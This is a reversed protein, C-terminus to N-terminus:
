ISDESAGLNRRSSGSSRGPARNDDSPPSHSADTRPCHEGDALVIFEVAAPLDAEVRLGFGEPVLAPDFADPGTQVYIGGRCGAHHASLMDSIMDGVMWSATLDLDMEAAARLLMGPGPKRDPHEIVDRRNTTPKVPCHYTADLRAGQKALLEDLHREMVAYEDETLLGRGIASQNTVVVCAYGAEQLRKLAAPVGPLLRIQEPRRPYHVPEILTGDRDLFVAPRRGSGCM